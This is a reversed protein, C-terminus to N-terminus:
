SKEQDIREREFIESEGRDLRSWEPQCKALTDWNQVPIKFAKLDDKICDKLRRKPGHQPHEGTKLEDYFLQKPLRVDGMRVVHGAWRLRNRMVMAEISLCEAKKLIDTDPTM